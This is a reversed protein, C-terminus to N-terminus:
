SRPLRKWRSTLLISASNRGGPEQPRLEFSPLLGSNQRPFGWLDCVYEFRDDAQQYAAATSYHSSAVCESIVVGRPIGSFGAAVAWPAGAFDTPEDTWNAGTKYRACIGSCVAPSVKQAVSGLYTLTTASPSSASSKRITAGQVVAAAAGELAIGVAADIGDQATPVEFPPGDKFRPGSTICSESVSSYRSPFLASTATPDAALILSPCAASSSSTSPKKALLTCLRTAPTFTAGYCALSVNKFSISM